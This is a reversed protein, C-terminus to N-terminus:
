WIEIEVPEDIGNNFEIPHTPLLKTTDDGWVSIIGDKGGSFYRPEQVSGAIVSFARRSDPSNSIKTTDNLTSSETYISRNQKNLRAVLSGDKVRYVLIEGSDSPVWLFSIETQLSPSLCMEIHQKTKNRILPGFNIGKNIPKKDSTMDWVRIKEDNSITILETGNENFIMSNINAHHAKNTLYKRKKLQNLEISNSTRNSDFEFLYKDSSRIDWGFCSGDNGGGICLNENFSSWACSSMFGVGGKIKGGGGLNQTDSLTRLDLMKLGGVGGDNCSIVTSSNGMPNFDFDLIRSDLPFSHVIQMSDTDYLNINFDFSSSLWMGNDPWWKVKTVGFKHVSKQPLVCIPSYKLRPKYDIEHIRDDDKMLSSDNLDWLKISSDASGSLLFRHQLPDLSLSNVSATHSPFTFTAIDARDDLCNLISYRTELYVQLREIM